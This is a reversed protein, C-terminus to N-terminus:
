IKALSRFLRGKPALGTQLFGLFIYPPILAVTVVGAFIWQFVTKAKLKLAVRRSPWATPNNTSAIGSPRIGPIGSCPHATLTSSELV